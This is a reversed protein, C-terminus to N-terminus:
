ENKRFFVLSHIILFGAGAGAGAFNFPFNQPSIFHPLSPSPWPVELSIYDTIILYVSRMALKYEMGHFSIGLLRIFRLRFDTQIMFAYDFVAYLM